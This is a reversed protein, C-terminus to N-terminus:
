EPSVTVPTTNVMQEHSPAPLKQCAPNSNPDPNSNRSVPNFLPAAARTLTTICLKVHVSKWPSVPHVSLSRPGAEEVNGMGEIADAPM